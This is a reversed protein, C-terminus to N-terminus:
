DSRSRAIEKGFDFGKLSSKFIKRIKMNKNMKFIEQKKFPLFNGTKKM